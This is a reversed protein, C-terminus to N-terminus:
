REGKVRFWQVVSGSVWRDQVAQSRKKEARRVEFANSVPGTSIYTYAEKRKGRGKERGGEENKRRGGGKKIKM